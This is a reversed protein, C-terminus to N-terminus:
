LIGYIEGTKVQFKVRSDWRKKEMESWIGCAAGCLASEAFGAEARKM